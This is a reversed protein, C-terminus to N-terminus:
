FFLLYMGATKKFSWYILCSITVSTFARKPFIGGATKMAFCTQKATVRLASVTAIPLPKRFANKLIPTM